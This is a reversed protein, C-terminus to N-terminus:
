NQDALLCNVRALATGVLHPKNIGRYVGRVRMLCVNDEFLSGLRGATDLPCYKGHKRGPFVSCPRGSWGPNGTQWCHSTRAMAGCPFRRLLRSVHDREDRVDYLVDSFFAGTVVCSASSPYSTAHPFFNELALRTM